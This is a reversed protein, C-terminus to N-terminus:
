VPSAWGASLGTAPRQSRAGRRAVRAAESSIAPRRAHGRRRPRAGVTRRGEVRALRLAQTNLAQEFLTRAFRANGFGEGRAAGALIARLAEEAEEDLAYEYGGALTQTISVLEDTSYDPFTIERSFRSRLGPNSELFRRMLRPYGAVIVVLRHRYDEM